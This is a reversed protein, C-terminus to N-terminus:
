NRHSSESSRIITDTHECKVGFILYELEIPLRYGATVPKYIINYRLAHLAKGNVWFPFLIETADNNIPWVHVTLCDECSIDVPGHLNKRLFKRQQAVKETTGETQVSYKPRKTFV